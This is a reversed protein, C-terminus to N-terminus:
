EPNLTLCRSDRKTDDGKYRGILGAKPEASLSVPLYFLLNLAKTSANQKKNENLPVCLLSASFSKDCGLCSHRHPKEGTHVREHTKLSSSATFSKDCGLCSCRCPKEGTNVREHKKLRSSASFSKDFGQHTMLNHSRM